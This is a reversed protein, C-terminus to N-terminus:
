KIVSYHLVVATNKRHDFEPQPGPNGLVRFHGNGASPPVLSPPQAGQAIGLPLIFAGPNYTHQLPAALNLTTGAVSGVTITETYVGVQSNIDLGVGSIQLQLPLTPPTTAALPGWSMKVNWPAPLTTTGSVAAVTVQNTTIGAQATTQTLYPVALASRDVIAFFRHRVHRGEARGIETKIKVPLVLNGAADTDEVEFFAVTVWVAFVNSRTTINNFIKQLLEFRLFPHDNPATSPSVEFLRRVPSGPPPPPVTPEPRLITDDIGKGPFQQDAGPYAGMALSRFPRDMKSFTGPPVPPVAAMDGPARSRAVKQFITAVDGANYCSLNAVHDCLAQFVEEDWITNLNIKGPLPGDYDVGAARYGTDLFELFRYIRADQQEWPARHGFRVAGAPTNYIFRQTLEFPRFGSVHLLEMPSVLPRDLHVLWDFSPNRPNNHQFFTHKPEGMAMGGGQQNNRQSPHAAYVQNRGSSAFEAGPNSSRDYSVEVKEMYDVTVYPNFTPSGPNPDHKLHPCLLRQLVITPRDTPPPAGKPPAMVQGEYTMETRSHTATVTGGPFTEPTNGAADVTPGLVYFGDNSGNAGQPNTGLPKIESTLPNPMNPPPPAFTDVIAPTMNRTKAWDTPPPPIFLPDGLVNARDAMAPGIDGDVIGVRYIKIGDGAKPATEPIELKVKADDYMVAPPYTVVPAGPMNGLLPNVLELWVDHLSKLLGFAKGKPNASGPTHIEVFAENLLLQPLETGFVWNNKIDDAPALGPANNWKFATNISGRGKFQPQNPPSNTFDYFDDADIYDVINVALQALWRSPELKPDGPPLALPALGPREGMTVLRLRDFLKEAFKQRDRVAQNYQQALNPNAVFDWRGNADPPPYPTLQENLHLRTLDLGPRVARPAGFGRGDSGFEGGIGGLGPPPTLSGTPFGYAGGTPYPQTTFTYATAPPNQSLWPTFGATNVDFSDTTVMHRIKPNLFFSSPSLRFYESAMGPSGTQGYRLLADLNRARYTRDGKFAPNFFNYLLPHDLREGPDGSGYSTGGPSQYSAFAFFGPPGGAEGPMKYKVSPGTPTFPAAAQNLTGDWDTEAYFPLPPLPFNPPFVPSPVSSPSLGPKQDNGYRGPLQPNPNGRLVNALDSPPAPPSPPLLKFLNVEWPGYGMNSANGPATGPPSGPPPPVRLNGHVNLNVKGDLDIILFAFLPKYKKGDPGIKVPFGIDILWSDNYYYGHGGPKKVGPGLDFNKVDGGEDADPNSFKDHYAPHPRLTKFRAFVDPNAPNFFQATTLPAYLWPREFSQILIEGDKNIAALFPNDVDPYTYPVNFGGVWNIGIREPHDRQFAAMVPSPDSPYSVFSMLQNNQAPAAGIMVQYNLRGIGNFAATNFTQPNYGYMSRGLSHGRLSSYVNDDDCLLKSLAYSLLLEADVDAIEQTGSQRVFRSATLEAEAYFVFALGVISFLTLLALVVLLIVGRRKDTTTTATALQPVFIM